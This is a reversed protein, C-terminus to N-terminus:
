ALAKSFTVFRMSIFNACTVLTNKIDRIGFIFETRLRESEGAKCRLDSGSLKAAGTLKL